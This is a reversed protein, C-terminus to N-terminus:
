LTSGSAYRLTVKEDGHWCLPVPQGNLVFCIERYSNPYDGSTQRNITLTDGSLSCRYEDVRWLDYGDGADLYVKGYAEYETTPYIHLELLDKNTERPLISGARVWIPIRDVSVDVKVTTPGSYRVDDWFYYWDGPPLIVQRAKCEPQLVPAILIDDGLTFQDDIDWLEHREPFNWFLPRIIPLGEHHCQWALTYIYPILQYRLNLYQRIISTYPEGFSWPERAETGVASHTRFFPIFTSLQFWRLYLEASPNGSFGGIDSGSFFHGSLSLGMLTILTQRLAEWTSAVDGTWNWSYHQLGAWGSRSIIWNRKGPNISQLVDYAAKNM